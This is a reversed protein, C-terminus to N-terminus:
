GEIGHSTVKCKENLFTYIEAENDAIVYIIDGLPSCVVYDKSDVPRHNFDFTTSGKARAEDGGPSDPDIHSRDDDTIDFDIAYGLFTVQRDGEGIDYPEGIPRFQALAALADGPLCVLTPNTWYHIYKKWKNKKSWKNSNYSIQSGFGIPYVIRPIKTHIESIKRPNKLHFERYKDKAKDLTM